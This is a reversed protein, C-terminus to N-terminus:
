PGALRRVIETELASYIVDSSNGDGGLLTESNIRASVIGRGVVVWNVLIEVEPGGVLRVGYTVGRHQVSYVRRSM